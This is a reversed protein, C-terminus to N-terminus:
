AVGPFYRNALALARRPLNAIRGEKDARYVFGEADRAASGKAYLVIFHGSVDMFRADHDDGSVAPFDGIFGRKVVAEAAKKAEPSTKHWSAGIVIAVNQGKELYRYACEWSERNEDMSFTLHYNAPLIGKDGRNKLPIKSYDYWSISPLDEMLGYREWRIDSSGNMRIAPILGQGAAQVQLNFAEAKVKQLFFDPYLKWLLTKILRNRRQQQMVMRGSSHGICSKGCVGFHPCMVMGSEWAPALYVVKSLVGVKRSLAVKTSDGLIGMKPLISLLRPLLTALEVGKYGGGQDRYWKVALTVEDTVWMAKKSTIRHPAEPYEKLAYAKAKEWLLPRTREALGVEALAYGADRLTAKSPTKIEM